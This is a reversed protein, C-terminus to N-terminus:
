CPRLFFYASGNMLITLLFLASLLTGVFGMFRSRGYWEPGGPDATSPDTRGTWNLFAAVGAAAAVAAAILALLGGLFAAGSVGFAEFALLSSHCRVEVLAYGVVFYIAWAAAGGLWGFWLLAPRPADPHARRSQPSKGGERETAM